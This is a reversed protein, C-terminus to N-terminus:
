EKGPLICKSCGKQINSRVVKAIFTSGAKWSRRSMFSPKYKEKHRHQIYSYLSECFCIYMCLCVYVFVVCMHECTHVFVCSSQVILHM